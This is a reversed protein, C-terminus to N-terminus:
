KNLYKMNDFLDSVIKSGMRISEKSMGAENPSVNLPGSALPCKSFVANFQGFFTNVAVKTTGSLSKDCSVLVIKDAHHLFVAQNATLWLENQISKTYEEESIGIRKAVTSDMEKSMITLWELRTTAEGPVQGSLGNISARHSMLTASPLVFRTGLSEVTHYGMSAAFITITHVPRGLGKAAAIMLNGAIVSGGPTDRVLFIPDRKSSLGLDKIILEQVVKSASEDTIPGRLTVTNSDKLALTEISFAVGAWTFLLFIWKRM